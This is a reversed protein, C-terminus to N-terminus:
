TRYYPLPPTYNVCCELKFTLFYLDYFYGYGGYDTLPYVIYFYMFQLMLLKFHSPSFLLTFNLFTILTIKFYPTIM